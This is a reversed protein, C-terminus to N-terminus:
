MMALLRQWVERWRQITNDSYSLARGVASHGLLVMKFCVKKIRFAIWWFVSIVLYRSLLANTVKIGHVNFYCFTEAAVFLVSEWLLTSRVEQLQFKFSCVGTVILSTEGASKMNKWWFGLDSVRLISCACRAKTYRKTNEWSVGPNVPIMPTLDNLSIWEKKQLFFVQRWLAGFEELVCLLPNNGKDRLTLSAATVFAYMCLFRLVM